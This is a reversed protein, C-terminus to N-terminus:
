CPSLTLVVNPKRASSSCFSCRASAFLEVASATHSDKIRTRHSTTRVSKFASSFSSLLRCLLRSSNWAHIINTLNAAMMRCLVVVLLAFFSSLRYRCVFCICRKSTEFNHKRRSDSLILRKLRGSQLQCHNNCGRISILLIFSKLLTQPASLPGTTQYENDIFFNFLYIM